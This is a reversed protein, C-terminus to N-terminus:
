GLPCEKVFPSKLVETFSARSKGTNKATYMAQDAHHVIEDVSDPPTHFTAVGISCTVDECHEVIAEQLRRVASHAGLVGTEPLMVIFEDGGVRASIDVSRTATTLAGGIDQLVKNGHTHGKEDNVKKFNDVDLYIVSIPHDYRRMREVEAAAHERFSRYTHLGTLHDTRSVNREHELTWRLYAMLEVLIFFVWLQLVVEIAAAVTFTRTSEHLKSAAVDTITALLMMSFGGVRKGLWAALMIPLLYLATSPYDHGGWRELGIDLM